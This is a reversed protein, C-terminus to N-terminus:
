GRVPFRLTHPFFYGDRIMTQYLPVCRSCIFANDKMVLFLWKVLVSESVLRVKVYAVYHGGHLTGSHEVVGYLAYLVQNQGPKLM